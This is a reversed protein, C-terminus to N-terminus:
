EQIIKLQAQATLDNTYPDKEASIQILDENLINDVFQQALDRRIYDEIVQSDIKRLILDSITTSAKLTITNTM